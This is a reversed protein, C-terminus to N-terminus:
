GSGPEQLLHTPWLLRESPLRDMDWVFALYSNLLPLKSQADPVYPPSSQTWHAAQAQAKTEGRTGGPEILTAGLLGNEKFIAILTVM